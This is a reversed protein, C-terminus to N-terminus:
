TPEESREGDDCLRSVRRCGSEFCGVYFGFISVTPPRQTSRITAGLVHRGAREALAAAATARGARLLQWRRVHTLPVKNSACFRIQQVLHRLDNRPLGRAGRLVELEDTAAKAFEDPARAARAALAEFGVAGVRNALQAVEGEVADADVQTRSWFCCAFQAEREEEVRSMDLLIDDGFGGGLHVREISGDLSLARATEKQSVRGFRAADFRSERAVM